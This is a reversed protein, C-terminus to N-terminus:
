WAGAVVSTEPWHGSGPGCPDSGLASRCGTPPSTLRGRQPPEAVPHNRHRPRTPMSPVWALWQRVHRVGAPSVLTSLLVGSGAAIVPLGALVFVVVVTHRWAAPAPQGSGVSALARVPVVTVMGGVLTALVGSTQGVRVGFVRRMAMPLLWFCGLLAASLLAINTMQNM